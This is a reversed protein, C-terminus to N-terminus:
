QGGLLSWFDHGPILGYEGGQDWTVHVTGLSDVLTVTGEDGPLLDCAPHGPVTEVSVLRIRQGCRAVPSDATKGTEM